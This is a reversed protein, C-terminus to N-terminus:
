FGSTVVECVEGVHGERSQILQIVIKRIDERALNNVIIVSVVAELYDILYFIFFFVLLAQVRDCSIYKIIM